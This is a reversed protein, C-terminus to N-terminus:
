GFATDSQELFTFLIPRTTIMKLASVIIPPKRRTPFGTIPSIPDAMCALAIANTPQPAHPIPVPIPSNRAHRQARIEISTKLLKSAAKPINDTTPNRKMGFPSMDPQLRIKSFANTKKYARM